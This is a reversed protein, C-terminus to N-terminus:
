ETEITGILEVAGAEDPRVVVIEGSSAPVGALARINVQHTVLVTPRSLDQEALWAQLAATQPAEREPKGFFSNLAPLEEIPGLAMLRATDHCRCWQSSLLRATSIGNARFLEGIRKAQARGVADLNRQTDCAGITFGPPDDFGPANAHRILAVHAGGRLAAWAEAEGAAHSPGADLVALVLLGALAAAAKASLIALRGTM